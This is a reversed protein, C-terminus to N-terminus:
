CTDIGTTADIAAVPVRTSLSRAYTENAAAIVDCGTVLESKTFKADALTGVPNVFTPEPNNASPEVVVTAAVAIEVFAPVEDVVAVIVYASAVCVPAVVASAALVEAVTAVIDNV